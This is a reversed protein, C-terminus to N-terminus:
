KAAFRSRSRLFAGFHWLVFLGVICVCTLGALLSVGPGVGLNAYLPRSFHITGAALTARVFDNGAFLSAAYLPYTLPLYLFVCQLVVFIGITFLSIGITPGIWHLSPNSTWAFIFLGVPLFFCTYLAPVLRKEPEGIGNERIDPELVWHIYSWYFAVGIIAGVIISLFSVGMEGLNFHFYDIYVIPFAEFFSYFIAYILAIFGACYAISPDLLITQIPRWLAEIVIDNFTLDAQKMEGESKLKENGTVKRLRQARRLLITPASTEPLLLFMLVWVPGALWLLEWISWRWNMAAVSFGSILPGLAPGATACLAWLSLLYPLKIVSVMDGLTAGATALCPSGFFGALFRLVMLGAVNQVLATPILLIVFVAFSFIYTPNRGIAPVESLPSFLLPGIGYALVYLSLGLSAVQSDVHFEEMVGTESPAYIASGMYFTFTYLYIIASVFFKKRFSWNQPNEPDDTSYWTVVTTGCCAARTRARSPHCQQITKRSRSKHKVPPESDEDTTSTDTSRRRQELSKPDVEDKEPVDHFGDPLKEDTSTHNSINIGDAHANSPAPIPATCEELDHRPRHFGYCPPLRFSDLEEPYRLLRNGSVYRILQGLPADRILDM